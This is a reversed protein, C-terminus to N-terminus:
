SEVNEFDLVHVIIESVGESDPEIFIFSIQPHDFDVYKFEDTFSLIYFSFITSVIWESVTSIVYFGWGDISPYWHKPEVGDFKSKAVIGCVVILLFLFSSTISLIFRYPTKRLTIYPDLKQSIFTQYWLYM